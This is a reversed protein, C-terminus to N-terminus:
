AVLRGDLVQVTRDAQEAFALDHTVVVVAAGGAAAERLLGYVLEGNTRDLNGTPEDALLLSPRKAIARAVATRQREGGSLTDVRQDLRHAMGVRALAARVMADRESRARCFLLGASVNQAVTRKPALHFAQFVFGIRESRLGARERPSLNESRVGFLELSGRNPTDLLGLLHMLTSKGSGSPGVIALFEGSRVTLDVEWLGVEAEGLKYTRGAGRAVALVDGDGTMDSRNGISEISDGTL